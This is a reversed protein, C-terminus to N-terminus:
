CLMRDFVLLNVFLFEILDLGLALLWFGLVWVGGVWTVGLLCICLSFVLLGDGCWVLWCCIGVLWGAWLCRFVLIWVLFCCLLGYVWVLCLSVFLGILVGLVWAVLIGVWLDFVEFSLVRFVLVLLIRIDYWVIGFLLNM